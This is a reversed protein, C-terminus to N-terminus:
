NKTCDFYIEFLLIWLNGVGTTWYYGLSLGVYMTVYSSSYSFIRKVFLFNNSYTHLLVYLTGHHFYHSSNLLLLKKIVLVVLKFHKIVM